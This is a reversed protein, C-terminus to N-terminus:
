NKKSNVVTLGFRLNECLFNIYKNESFLTCIVM